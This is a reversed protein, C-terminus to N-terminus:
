EPECEYRFAEIEPQVVGGPDREAEREAHADMCEKVDEFHVPNEPDELNVLYYAQLLSPNLIRDDGEAIYESELV